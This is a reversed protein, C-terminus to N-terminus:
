KAPTQILSRTSNRIPPKSACKYCVRLGTRAWFRSPSIPERQFHKHQPTSSLSANHQPAHRDGNPQPRPSRRERSFPRRRLRGVAIVVGSRLREHSPRHHREDHQGTESEDRRDNTRDGGGQAADSPISRRRRWGRKTTRDVPQHNLEGRAFSNACARDQPRSAETAGSTATEERLISSFPRFGSSSRQRRAGASCRRISTSPHFDPCPLETAHEPADEAIVSM